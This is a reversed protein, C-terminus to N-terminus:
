SADQTVRLAEEPTTLGATAKDIADTRMTVM